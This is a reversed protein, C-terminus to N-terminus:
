SVIYIHWSKLKLVFSLVTMLKVYIVMKNYFRFINSTVESIVKFGNIDCGM